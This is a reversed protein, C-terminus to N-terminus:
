AADSGKGSAKASAAPSATAATTASAAAIPLHQSCCQHPPATLPTGAYYSNRQGAGTAKTGSRKWRGTRRPDWRRVLRRMAGQPIPPLLAPASRSQHAVPRRMCMYTRKCVCAHGRRARTRKRTHQPRADKHPSLAIRAALFKCLEGIKRDYVGLMSGPQPLPTPLAPLCRPGLGSCPVCVPARRLQSRAPPLAGLWRVSRGERSLSAHLHYRWARAKVGGDTISDGLALLRLPDAPSSPMADGGLRGGVGAVPNWVIDVRYRLAM